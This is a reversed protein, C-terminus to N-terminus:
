ARTASLDHVVTKALMVRDISLTLPVTCFAFLVGYFFTLFTTNAQMSHAEMIIMLSSITFKSLTNANLAEKKSALFLLLKEGILNALRLAKSCQEQLPVFFTFM